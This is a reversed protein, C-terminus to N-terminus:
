WALEVGGSWRKVKPREADKGYEITARDKNRLKMAMERNLRDIERRFEEDIENAQEIREEEKREELKEVKLVLRTRAQEEINRKNESYTLEDDILQVDIGQRRCMTELLWKFRGALESLSM